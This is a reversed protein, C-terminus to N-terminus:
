PDQLECLLNWFWIWYMNNLPLPCTMPHDIAVCKHSPDNARLRSRHVPRHAALVNSRLFPCGTLPVAAQKFSSSRDVTATALRHSLEAALRLIASAKAYRVGCGPRNHKLELSVQQQGRRQAQRAPGRIYLRPSNDPM